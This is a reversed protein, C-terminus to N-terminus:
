ATAMRARQFNERNIVGCPFYTRTFSVCGMRHSEVLKPEFDEGVALETLSGGIDTVLKHGKGPQMHEAGMLILRVKENGPIIEIPCPTAKGVRKLFDTANPAQHLTRTGVICVSSPLFGQLREASLSLYGLGREM